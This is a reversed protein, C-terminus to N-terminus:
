NLDQSLIQDLFKRLEAPPVRRDDSYDKLFYNFQEIYGDEIEKLKSNPIYNEKIFLKFDGLCDYLLMADTHGFKSAEEVFRHAKEDWKKDEESM